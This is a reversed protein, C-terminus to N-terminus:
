TEDVFINVKYTRLQDSHFALPSCVKVDRNILDYNCGAVKQLYILITSSANLAATSQM